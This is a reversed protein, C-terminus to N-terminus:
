RTFKSRLLTSFLTCSCSCSTAFPLPWISNKRALGVVKDLSTAMFGEGQYGEPGEKVLKIDRNGNLNYQVPRM